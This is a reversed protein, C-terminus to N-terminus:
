RAPPEDDALVAASMADLFHVVARQQDEDLSEAVELMRVHAPGLASRIGRHAEETAHIVQARRDSPHPERRVHGSTVLRSLLKATAASSVNLFASLDKPSVSIGMAESRILHRLAMLDTENMCMAAQTRRRMASDASRFRRLSQLVAVSSVTREGTRYWYRGQPMPQNENESM